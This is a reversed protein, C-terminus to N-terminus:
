QSQSHANVEHLAYITRRIENSVINAGNLWKCENRPLKPARAKEDRWESSIRTIKLVAYKTFTLRYLVCPYHGAHVMGPFVWHVSALCLRHLLTLCLSPSPTRTRVACLIHQRQMWVCVKTYQSSFWYPWLISLLSLLTHLDHFLHLISPQYFPVRVLHCAPLWVLFHVQFKPFIRIFFLDNWTHPNIPSVSVCVCPAFYLLRISFVCSRNVCFVCMLSLMYEGFLIYVVYWTTSTKRRFFIHTHPQTHM